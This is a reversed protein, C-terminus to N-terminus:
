DQDGIGPPVTLLFDEVLKLAGEVSADRIEERDGDLDLLLSASLWEQAEAASLGARPEECGEPLRVGLRRVTSKRCALGLYVTGVDKGEHPAPGAVGTTSVGIDAGTCAAAGRAMAAAVDPDVAGRQELLEADVGLVNRKVASSYAVVGGLLAVSTGPVEAIRSCLGGATLSEATALTAGRHGLRQILSRPETRHEAERAVEGADGETKLGEPM